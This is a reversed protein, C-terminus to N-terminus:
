STRDLGDIELMTYEKNEVIRPVQLDFIIQKNQLSIQCRWQKRYQKILQSCWSVLVDSHFMQNQQNEGADHDIM